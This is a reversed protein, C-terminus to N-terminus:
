YISTSVCWHSAFALERMNVALTKRLQTVPSADTSRIVAGVRRVLEAQQTTVKKKGRSSSHRARDLESIRQAAGTRPALNGPKLLSAAPACSKCMGHLYAHEVSLICALL